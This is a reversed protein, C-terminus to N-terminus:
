LWHDFPAEIRYKAVRTALNPMARGLASPAAARGPAGFRPLSRGSGVAQRGCCFRVRFGGSEGTVFQKIRHQDVDHGVVRHGVEAARGALPRGVCGRGAVVVDM